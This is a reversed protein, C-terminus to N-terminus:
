AAVASSLGSIIKIDGKIFQGKLVNPSTTDSFRTGEEGIGYYLATKQDLISDYYPYPPVVSFEKLAPGQDVSYMGGEYPKTMVITLGDLEDLPLERKILSLYANVSDVGTGLMYFVDSGYKVAWDLLHDVAETAEADDMDSTELILRISYKNNLNEFGLTYPPGAAGHYADQPVIMVRFAEMLLPLRSADISNTFHEDVINQFTIEGPLGFTPFIFASDMPAIDDGYEIGMLNVSYCETVLESPDLGAAVSFETETYYPTLDFTDYLVAKNVKPFISIFPYYEIDLSLGDIEIQTRLTIDRTANDRLNNVTLIFTATPQQIFVKLTDTLEDFDTTVNLGDLIVSHLDDTGIEWYILYWKVFRYMNYYPTNEFNRSSNQPPYSNFLASASEAKWYLVDNLVKAFRSVSLPDNRDTAKLAGEIAVMEDQNLSNYPRLNQWMHKSFYELADAESTIFWYSTGDPNVRMGEENLNEMKLADNAPKGNDWYVYVQVPFEMEIHRNVTCGSTLYLNQYSTRDESVKLDLDLKVDLDWFFRFDHDPPREGPPYAACRTGTSFDPKWLWEQVCMPVNTYWAKPPYTSSIQIDQGSILYDPSQDLKFKETYDESRNHDLTKFQMTKTQSLNLFMEHNIVDHYDDAFRPNFMSRQFMITDMDNANLIISNPIPQQDLCLYLAMIDAPDLIGRYCYDSILTNLTRGLFDLSQRAPFYREIYNQTEGEGWGRRKTPDYTPAESRAAAESANFFYKDVANVTEPDFNNFVKMQWLILAINIALEVDGENLINRPSENADMGYKNDRFNNNLRYRCVTTLMYTVMRAMVSSAGEGERAFLDQASEIYPLPYPLRRSFSHNYEVVGKEGTAIAKFMGSLRLFVPAVTDERVLPVRCDVSMNKGTGTNEPNVYYNPVLTPASGYDVTLKVSSARKIILQTNQIKKPYPAYNADRLFDEINLNLETELAALDNLKANSALITANNYAFDEVDQFIRLINGSVEVDRGVDPNSTRKTDSMAPVALVILLIAIVIVAGISIYINRKGKQGEENPRPTFKIDPSVV